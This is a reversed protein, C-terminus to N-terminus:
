NIKQKTAKTQFYDIFQKKIPNSIPQSPRINELLMMLPTKGLSDKLAFNGNHRLLLDFTDITIEVLEPCMAGGIYDWSENYLICHIITRMHINSLLVNPNAGKQLLLEITKLPRPYSICSNFFPSMTYEWNIEQVVINGEPNEKFNNGNPNIGMALICRTIEIYRDSKAASRLLEHGMELSRPNNANYAHAFSNYERVLMNDLYREDRVNLQECSLLPAKNQAHPPPMAKLAFCSSFLLIPLSINYFFGPHVQSTYNIQTHTKNQSRSKMQLLEWHMIKM